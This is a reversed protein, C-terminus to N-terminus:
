RIELRQGPAVAADWTHRSVMAQYQIGDDVFTRAAFAATIDFYPTHIETIPNAARRVIVIYRDDDGTWDPITFEPENQETLGAITIPDDAAAIIGFWVREYAIDGPAAITYQDPMRGPVPGSRLDNLIRRWGRTDTKVGMHDLALSAVLMDRQATDDVLQLTATIEGWGVFGILGNRITWGREELRADPLAVGNRSIATISEAQAKLQLTTHWLDNWGQLHWVATATGGEARPGLQRIEYQEAALLAAAVLSEDQTASMGWAAAFTEPTWAM